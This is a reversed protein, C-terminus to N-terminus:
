CVAATTIASVVTTYYYYNYYYFILLLLLVVSPVALNTFVERIRPWARANRKTLHEGDVNVSKRFISTHATVCRPLFGSSM